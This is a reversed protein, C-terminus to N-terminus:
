SLRSGRAGSRRLRLGDGRASTVPARRAGSPSGGSAIALQSARWRSFTVPLRRLDAAGAAGIPNSSEQANGDVTTMDTWVLSGCLDGHCLVLTRRGPGTLWLLLASTPGLSRGLVLKLAAYVVRDHLVSRGGAPCRGKGACSTAGLWHCPGPDAPESWDQGGDSTM